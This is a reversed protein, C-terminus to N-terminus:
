KLVRASLIKVDTTPRDNADTEVKQIRDVVDMGEIVEGYVTYSGDLHPTGGVTSYVQRQEATLTDPAAKVKQEMEAILSDQLQQLGALDKSRRMSMISDRHALALSNFVTQKQQQVRRADMQDLQAPTFQRGTVIYFQCGSSKKHPNVGDGERAAAVAGRKHFHKPYVFEADITYGVDGAGLMKGPQTERSDPDGGQIMFDNIVRHFLLGNYFGDNVLKVFNETHNPTDGYLLLVIKGETTTLEVKVDSADGIIEQKDMAKETMANVAGGALLMAAMASCFFRRLTM